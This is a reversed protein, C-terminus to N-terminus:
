RQHAPPPAPPPQFAETVLKHVKGSILIEGPEATTMLRAALNTDDGLASYTRRTKGGYAGARMTGRSIGIQLPQLFNLEEPLQRLAVAAKVARYADDEHAVPAGCSAYLYVGKDGMTIQLLAGGYRTFIVQVRRIFADLKEQALEDTDYDIGTSFLFFLVM